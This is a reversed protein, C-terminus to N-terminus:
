FHLKKAPAYTCNEVFFSSSIGWKDHEGIMWYIPVNINEQWVSEYLVQDALYDEEEGGDPAFDGSYVDGLHLVAEVGEANFLSIIELTAASDEVHSIRDYLTGTVIGIRV